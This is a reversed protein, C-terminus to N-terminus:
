RVPLNVYEKLVPSAEEVVTQVVPLYAHVESVCPIEMAVTTQIM